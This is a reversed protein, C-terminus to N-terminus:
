IMASSTGNHTDDEGIPVDDAIINPIRMMKEKIVKNLEEEKATLEDIEGKMKSVEDKIKMAEDKKGDRMLTGIQDSLRNKEAKLNDAKAKADRYETDM